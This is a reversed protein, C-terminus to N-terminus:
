ALVVQLPQASTDVKNQHSSLAAEFIPGAWDPWVGMQDFRLTMADRFRSHLFEPAGVAHLLRNDASWLTTLAAALSKIESMGKVEEAKRQAQLKMNFGRTNFEGDMEWLLVLLAPLKKVKGFLRKM